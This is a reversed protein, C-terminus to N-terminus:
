TEETYAYAHRWIPEAYDAFAPHDLPERGRWCLGIALDDADGRPWADPPQSQFAGHAARRAQEADKGAHLREGFKHSSQEFFPLPQPLGERYGCLLLAAQREAVEVPLDRLRLQKGRGLLVTTTPWSGAGRHRALALFVHHVWARLHDKPKIRAIRALLLCEAGLGHIEGRVRTGAVAVDLPRALLAGFSRLQELFHQLEDDVDVFAIRSMGGVPLLGSARMLAEADRPARTGRLAREVGDSQLAWRELPGVAFPEMTADPEDERPLRLGLGHRLYFRSPNPWFELLRDFPVDASALEAATPIPGTCWAPEDTGLLEPELEARTYTFLRPDRRAGRERYRVSWPQLPHEVVIAARPLRGDALRECSLDVHDLLEGLVVSPACASNDKQSRGVYCLHLSERAALLVDLFMQRDDLRASRDGPRRAAAILDFPPPSDRRPFSADDLGCVFLRRVPVTRMPLLAAITVAGALFGRPSPQQRLTQDLWDRLVTRHLPARCRAIDAAARLKALAARVLVLAQEDEAAAPAFMAELLAEIRLAWQAPPQPQQLAQLQAWLTDTFHLFRLLLEDRGSTADAVPLQGLVLDHVPGTATGLLLRQLGPRWANDDFPPVQFQRARAEGDLGWRIGARECRSRLSPLDSAFIGFRQQVAPQELLHLVDHVELREQALQLVAFLATCLPLGKAPSKDAVHFPLYEQVPGFVAHAFPAYREIDPVLVLVQDPTLEADAAFAALIQDRVVELERQPSHCVHVRLSDDDARLRLRQALPGRDPGRVRLAAIDDQLQLLLPAGDAVAPRSAMEGLDVVLRAQAGLRETTRALLTAFERAETGLRAFLANSDPDLRHVDGTFLATPTPVFLHVELHQSLTALLELFAPPLTGAGFVSLRVPQLARATDGDALAQQLRAFRQAALPDPAASAADATGETAGLEPFLLPGTPAPRRRGRPKEPGNANPLMGADRLLERWLRAQWQAHPGAAPTDDGASWQQLLEPRYLQYDDFCRVLRQLLQLRKQQDPDQECYAAAPGFLARLKHDDFLRWLRFLLPDPAFPDGSGARRQDLQQVFAGPFPLQLGAAIGCRQALQQRLWRSLGQSPVVITEDQLPPLPTRQLVTVLAELLEELRNSTYVFLGTSVRLFSRSAHHPHV